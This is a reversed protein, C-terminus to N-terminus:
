AVSRDRCLNINGARKRIGEIAEEVLAVLACKQEKEGNSTQRTRALRGRVHRLRNSIEAFDNVNEKEFAVEALSNLEGCIRRCTAMEAMSPYLSSSDAPACVMGAAERDLLTRLAGTKKRHSTLGYVGRINLEYEVEEPRLYTPDM